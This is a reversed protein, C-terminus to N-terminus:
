KGQLNSLERRAKMMADRAKLHANELDASPPKGKATRSFAWYAQDLKDKANIYEQHLREVEQEKKAIKQKTLDKTSVVKGEKVSKTVSSLASGAWYSEYSGDRRACISDLRKSLADAKSLCDDLKSM